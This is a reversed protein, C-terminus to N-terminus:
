AGDQASKMVLVSANLKETCVVTVVLSQESLQRDVRGFGTPQVEVTLLQCRLQDFEPRGCVEGIVRDAM